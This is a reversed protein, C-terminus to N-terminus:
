YGHDCCSLAYIGLIDLASPFVRCDEPPFDKKERLLLFSLLFALSSPLDNPPSISCDLAVLERDDLCVLSDETIDKSRGLEGPASIYPNFMIAPTM